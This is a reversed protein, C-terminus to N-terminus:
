PQFRPDHAADAFKSPCGERVAAPRLEFHWPENKYIQCLGYKAGRKSLWKAANAPGVDVADGSVHASKDPPAVWRAAEKLSGYKSVAQRLLEEQYEESRWGSDILLTVGDGAADTTARLLATRLDSDLKTVAPLRNDFVTVGDTVEGHAEGFGGLNHEHPTGMYATVPHEQGVSSAATPSSPALLEYGTIAAITVAFGAFVGIRLIRSFM